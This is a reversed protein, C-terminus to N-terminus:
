AKASGSYYLALSTVLEATYAAAYVLAGALALSPDVVAVAILVLVLVIGRGMM